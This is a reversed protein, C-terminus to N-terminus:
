ATVRARGYSLRALRNHLWGAPAGGANGSEFSDPVNFRLVYLDCYM